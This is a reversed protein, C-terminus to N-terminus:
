KLFPISLPYKWTHRNYGKISGIIPFLISLMFMIGAIIYLIGGLAIMPSDFFREIYMPYYDIDPEKAISVYESIFNMNAKMNYKICIIFLIFYLIGSIYWNLIYKGQRNIKSSIGRAKLWFLIPAIWGIFPILILFNMLTLCWHEEVGLPLSYRHGIKDEKKNLEDLTKNNM